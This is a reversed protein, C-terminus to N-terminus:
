NLELRGDQVGDQIEIDMGLDAATDLRNSLSCSLLFM